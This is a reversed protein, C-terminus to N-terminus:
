NTQKATPRGFMLGMATLFAFLVAFACSIQFAVNLIDTMKQDLHSLHNFAYISPAAVVGVILAKIFMPTLGKWRRQIEEDTLQELRNSRKAAQKYQKPRKRM